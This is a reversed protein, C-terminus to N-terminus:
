PSFSFPNRRGESEREREREIYIYKYRYLYIYTYICWCWTVSLLIKGSYCAGTFAGLVGHQVLNTWDISSKQLFIPLAICSLWQYFWAGGAIYHLSTAWDHGVRQLGTSQLRGPEERWPNRWALISSHTAMEKEPTDERGLSRVQTERMTPLHKGM